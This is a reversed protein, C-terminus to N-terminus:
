EPGVALEISDPIINGDITRIGSIPHTACYPRSDIERCIVGPQAPRSFRSASSLKDDRAGRVNNDVTHCAHGNIDQM